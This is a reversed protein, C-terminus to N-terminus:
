NLSLNGSIRIRNDVEIPVDNKFWEVRPIPYGDVECAISIDSGEPWQEQQASVNM